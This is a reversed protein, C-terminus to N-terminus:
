IGHDRGGETRQEIGHMVGRGVPRYFSLLRTRGGLCMAFKFPVYNVLALENAPKVSTAFNEDFYANFLPRTPPM